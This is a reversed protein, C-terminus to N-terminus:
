KREIKIKYPFIKDLLSKKSLLREKEIAVQREFEEIQIEWAAQNKIQDLIDDMVLKKM